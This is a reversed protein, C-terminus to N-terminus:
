PLSPRIRGRAAIDRRQDINDPASRAHVVAVGLPSPRRAAVPVNPPHGETAIVAGPRAGLRELFEGGGTDIDLSRSAAAM